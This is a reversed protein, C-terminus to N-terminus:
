RAIVRAEFDRTEDLMPLQYECVQMEGTDLARKVYQLTNSSVEDPLIEDLKAGIIQEPSCYLKDVDGAKFDLFEGVGNVFFMLDPNADLMAKNRAASTRLEEEALKSETIDLQVGQWFQPDGDANPVLVSEDRVWVVSGDRAILRYEMSFPEGIATVRADEALVRERDEPHLIKRWYDPDQKYFDQPYGLIAEIQPSDYLTRNDEVQELYVIAPVQEVLARCKAEAQQLSAEFLKRESIDRVVIQSAPLDMYTIPASTVEVEIVKGDLRVWRQEILDAPKKEQVLRMRKRVTEHCDPHIFDLVPRGLIEESSDAGM